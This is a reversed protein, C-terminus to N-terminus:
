NSPEVEMEQKIALGDKYGECLSKCIFYVNDDDMHEMDRLTTVDHISFLLELAKTDDEIGHAHFLQQLAGLTGIEKRITSFVTHTFYYNTM